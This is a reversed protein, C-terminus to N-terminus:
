WFHLSVRTVGDFVRGLTEIIRSFLNLILEKQIYNENNPGYNVSRNSIKYFLYLILEVKKIYNVNNLKFM